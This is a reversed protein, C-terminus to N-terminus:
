VIVALSYEGIKMTGNLSSYAIFVFRYTGSSNPMTNFTKLDANYIMFYDYQTSSVLYSYMSPVLGILSTNIARLWLRSEIIAANFESVEIKDTFTIDSMYYYQIIGQNPETQTGITWDQTTIDGTNPLSFDIESAIQDVYLFDHSYMGSFVLTFSGFILLLESFIIGVVINKKAKFGKRKFIIGLILSALPIPLFLYFHWMNEVMVSANNTNIEVFYLGFYLTLFSLIFLILLLAKIVSRNGQFQPTQEVEQQPPHVENNIAGFDHNEDNLDGNKM